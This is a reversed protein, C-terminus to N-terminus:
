NAYLEKHITKAAYIIVKRPCFYCITRHFFIFIITNIIIKEPISKRSNAAGTSFKQLDGAIKDRSGIDYYPM